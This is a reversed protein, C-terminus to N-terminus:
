KLINFSIFIPLEKIKDDYTQKFSAKKNISLKSNTKEEILKEFRFKKINKELNEDEFDLNLEIENEKKLGAKKRADQVKRILERVYGETELEPTTKLDLEVEFKKGKKFEIKKVNVYSELIELIEKRIEGDLSVQAKALPWRIGIGKESRIALIKEIVQKALEFEQELATKIANEDFEPWSCLHISDEPLKFEHKLEQYINETIFPCIPAFLKLCSILTNYITWIVAKKQEQTGLVIKSRILQIYFRSLELYLNEIPVISEDLKYSNLLESVKKISSNTKSLMYLEELALFPAEKVKAPNFDNFKSLEILYNKLNWLIQVNRQKIKLDEWNFSMNEGAQSQTMYYRFIDVGVKDIVEYPSIINGQSKSMKSGQWDLIMGHIYVNDYCPKKLAVLSCALLGSFWLKIQENGELIFDAPFWEKFFKEETPYYLCNWSTTGSDLWVDLIDPVREMEKGCKCKIKVDDIWPKHLDDPLKKTSLKALEQQSGVVVNNGCECQWIPAPTGWYRQRLICWDKLAKVWAGFSTKGWKPVWKVRDNYKLMEPILDEIKLFWQETARFVVPNHCRWCYPYEHEVETTTMLAGKKELLKIIKEDDKKATFVGLKDLDLLNGKEDLTNFPPIKYKQGIEYDEPGCGPACHVLGSGADTTVYEGSLLVTHVNRHKKKLEDYIKYLEEYFPHEYELGELKNGKMEEIIEFEKELLGSIVVNALAKAIIWIENGVKAKVYEIEPNVMVGLNYPITWPTTTWIILFENKKNKVRFKLFISKDKVNEYELEHKALATECTACWHMIKKGKYLRGQEYAQKILFWENSMFDNDVPLYANDFDMWVGLNWLDKSMIKANNTSFERCKKTFKELGFKLIDQKYKLNLLKQVANETPLGHMDYGYRDWVNYGQMRKFRLVADKLCNNWATGIHIKGSTFPPGHLFYFKKGKVNKKKAKDYTKKDQWLKLVDQETKKFDYM